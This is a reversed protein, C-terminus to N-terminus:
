FTIIRRREPTNQSLLDSMDLVPADSLENLKTLANTKFSMSAQIRDNTKLTMKILTLLFIQQDTVVTLSCTLVAVSLAHLVDVCNCVLPCLGGFHSVDRHKQM